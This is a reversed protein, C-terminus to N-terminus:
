KIKLLVHASNSHPFQSEIDTYNITIYGDFISGIPGSFKTSNSFCQISFSYNDSIALITNPTISNSYDTPNTNCNISTINIPSNTNQVINIDATGNTFLIASQCTIGSEFVCFTKAFASPNFVGLMDLAALVVAIILIAWGYTMLYEMASQLKFNM